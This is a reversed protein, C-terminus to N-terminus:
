SKTGFVFDFLDDSRRNQGCSPCPSIAEKLLRHIGLVFVLAAFWAVLILVVEIVAAYTM